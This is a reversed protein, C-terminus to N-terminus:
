QAEALSKLKILMEKVTAESGSRGFLGMIRGLIGYPLEINEMFTFKSGTPASEVVWKQEYTKVFEGSIMKLAIRNNGVWETIVFNLRLLRMPTKEEVYITAGLGRQESTYQFKMFTICWKLVNEPQVLFPWVKESSAEIQIDGQVKM